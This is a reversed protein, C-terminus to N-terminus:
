VGGESVKAAHDTMRLKAGDCQSVGTESESPDILSGHRIVVLVTCFLSIITKCYCNKARRPTSM